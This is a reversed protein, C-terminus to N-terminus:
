WRDELKKRVGYKRVGPRSQTQGEGLGVDKRSTLLIEQNRGTNEGYFSFVWVVRSVVLKSFDQQRRSGVGLAAGWWFNSSVTDPNPTNSRSRYPALLRLGTGTNM